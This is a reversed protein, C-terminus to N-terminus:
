LYDWKVKNKYLLPYREQGRDIGAFLTFIQITFGAGRGKVSDIVM